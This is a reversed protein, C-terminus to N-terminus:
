ARHLNGAPSLATKREPSSLMTVMVEHHTVRQENAMKKLYPSINDFFLYCWNKPQSTLDSENSSDKVSTSLDPKQRKPKELHEATPTM